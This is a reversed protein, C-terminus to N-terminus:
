MESVGRLWALSLRRGAEGECARVAHIGVYLALLKGRCEVTHRTAVPRRKTENVVHGRRLKKADAETYQIVSALRFVHQLLNVQGNPVLGGGEVLSAGARDSPEDGDRAVAGDVARSRARGRAPALRDFRCCIHGIWAGRREFREGRRLLLLPELRTEILDFLALGQRDSGGEHAAEGIFLEGLARAHRETRHLAPDPAPEGPKSLAELSSRCCRALSPPRGASRLRIH